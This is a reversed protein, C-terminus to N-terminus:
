DNSSVERSNNMAILIDYGRFRPPANQFLRTVVPGGGTKRWRDLAGKTVRLIAMVQDTTYLADPQILGGTAQLVEPSKYPQHDPTPRM